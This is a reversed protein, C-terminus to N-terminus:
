AKTSPRMEYLLAVEDCQDRHPCRVCDNWVKEPFVHKPVQRFGLRSFLRSRRTLAFVRAAGRQRALDMARRVLESGLGRGVKDPAVALSRIEVLNPGYWRLSVCGVLRGGAHAVLFDPLANRVEGPTRPLLLGAAAYPALLDCVGEVDPEAAARIVVTTREDPM